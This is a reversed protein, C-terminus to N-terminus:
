IKEKVVSKEKSTIYYFAPIVILTLITSIALGGIAVVGLPVRMEAGADGIGLALPLMGLIIATTSMIIPKLKTPCAEILAEKPTKGEERRLQNTYDLILIANNVVIGILMIIAMLSTIGFAINTIYLSAIVGILALMVTLMILVPQWFSELIAALLMYTLLFALFFAFFMDSIMENMMKVNGGWKFQYGSPLDIEALRKDIEGTVNGLPVGAAPSGTFMISTFKDRHLIKTYGTTFKIDALQSLRFSGRQTAITINGIKDPANVSEDNLTVTIDYENGLERYKSSQLGEVSSRLTFALDAVTIGADVLKERRPVVTIEPKGARSSQDLNILGPVDKIKEMVRNKIADMQELDQGLLFFQVPAGGGGMTSGLDVKIKANPVAALDRVFVSIIEEIRRSREKVDVLQIDMYAMNAGVDVNSKKGLTTLMRMVEPHKKVRNEIEEMLKETEALNYGEPMEAEIKIRGNDMTPMFEFGLKPGLAIMTIVFLVFAAIVIIFSRLKTSLVKSLLNKYYDINKKEFRYMFKSFWTPKISEPLILSALMPTLTFSMILSFITAFVAALALEKLWQGVLSSMNAIPLFVVINTLTSALVAVMVESTGIFSAEKTSKGLGKYRFINEIVVISNAVLVGVSVSLGMLTMMNLSLGAMQILLFTSIISVPMSLAVIITSRFDHLFIFLVIATLIVGLIINSMTDNVASQVYESADKVVELDCGEPLSQSIEPLSEHIARAVDVVNGDASKIIGLRVVNTNRFGQKVNNYITRQRIDKGSDIVDAVQRLKKPGFATPIEIEKIMEPSSFEGDLRVTYEQDKIQFYGGPIDMNHAALIQTLQPLSITNEFVTKNDLVIRIEREQGGAIEVNAVGEIQSFRDKLTKDAIEYLQRPDLNGSLVVDLVSFAKFDVKQVIPKQADEPLDNLTADVKDKIEQNAVDVDKGIKFEIIVISAGDLSYSEIREIGTVTSIADELRKSILTEVEKPGAGPYITQITVFPIEVDPQLDLNLGFFAIAGFIVFVLLGMTTMVPRNISIKALVM